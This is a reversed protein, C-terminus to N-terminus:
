KNMNIIIVGAVILILVALICMLVTCWAIVCVEELRTNKIYDKGREKIDDINDMIVAICTLMGLILVVIIGVKLIIKLVYLISSSDIEIM